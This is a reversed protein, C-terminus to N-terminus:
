APSRTCGDPAQPWLRPADPAAAAPPDIVSALVECDLVIAEAADQAANRSEAIVMAVPEGVHRLMDAALLPQPPVIAPRGDRGTAVALPEVPGVGDATAEEATLVAVVGPMGRAAAVSLAIIRAHAHPSRLFVAHLAGPPIVDEVFRGLGALLRAPDDRATGPGWGDSPAAGAAAATADGGPPM